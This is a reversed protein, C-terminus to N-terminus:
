VDSNVVGLMRLKDVLGARQFPKMLYEDAGASLARLMQDTEIETTVMLMVIKAFRSESRVARIFELGNMEPMNWDVLILDPLPQEQLRELAQRGNTAEVTEFGLDRLIEGEIRRIPRSDDVVLAKMPPAGEASWRLISCVSFPLHM